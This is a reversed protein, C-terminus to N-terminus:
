ESHESMGVESGGGSVQSGGGASENKGVQGRQGGVQQMAKQCMKEIAEYRDAAESEFDDPWPNTPATSGGYRKIMDITLPNLSAAETTAIGGPLGIDGENFELKKHFRMSSVFAKWKIAKVSAMTETIIKMRNLRAYGVMDDYIANYACSLQAALLNLLFILCMVLFILVCIIIFANERTKEYKESSYVRLAMQLLSWMSKHLGLFDENDQKLCSMASGFSFIIVFIAILFLAVETLMRTCVLVYASVRTYIVSLDMCLGFYTFMALMSFFSFVIIQDKKDACTGAWASPQDEDDWCAIIPDTILMCLMMIVLFMKAGEQVNDRM